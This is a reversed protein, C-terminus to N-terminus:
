IGSATSGLCAFLDKRECHPVDACEVTVGHSRLAELAVIDDADLHVYPLIRKRGDRHHLGGMNLEEFVLGSRYLHLADAPNEILLLVNEGAEIWEHVRDGTEALSLVSVPVGEPATAEYMEREWESGAAADNAVVFRDPKLVSGWGQTVQGHLLRDDIRVLLLSV